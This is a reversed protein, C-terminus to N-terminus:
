VVSLILLPYFIFFLDSIEMYVSQCLCEHTEVHFTIQIRKNALVISFYHLINKLVSLNVKKM